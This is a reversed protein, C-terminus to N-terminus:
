GTMPCRGTRGLSRARDDLYFNPRQDRDQYYQHFVPTQGSSMPPVIWSWDAPVTRGAQEERALHTLFRTSETHHDTVTVGARAFSHLVAVNLEVLVRDKWLSRDSSTDLGLRKAVEPMLGYRDTDALNRAGIETGMYWGSFPAAPYSIGGIELRMNSIAPLAHWRVDLEAFWDYEPHSLPVELVADAPVEYWRPAEGPMQVVIPLLDFYGGRGGAWGMERLAQTFEVYRPDGVVAGGPQRYGAYRVLQENWIRVGDQGPRAPGFVTITPRIRGGNTSVRLHHVLEGFVGDASHIGRRDRVKLSRWYLRGICRSSNRWAVKAGFELETHTHVYTGTREISALVAHLRPELPGATPNERHHLRLFDEAEAPDVSDEATGAVEGAGPAVAGAPRMISAFEIGPPNDSRRSASTAEDAHRRPQATSTDGQRSSQM